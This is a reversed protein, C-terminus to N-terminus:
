PRELLERLRSLQFGTAADDLADWRVAAEPHAARMRAVVSRFAELDGQALVEQLIPRVEPPLPVDPAVGAPGAAENAAPLFHWHLHLLHGVRGVLDGTRFPKPLFDDAGAEQATRPDFSLVSASTLLLRLAAGRPRARLQRTFELGDMGAMRYDVIALDPWPETGDDLRALAEAADAYDRCVFGLPVLLDAVLNRNVAHDDVILVRRRPGDYGTVRVGAESRPPPPVTPLALAFVFTSGAGPESALALSGGMREALARAIALGLGTGPSAPRTAHAQEFPQFLRAQDGPTVGPGTDSVAFELGLGHDGTPGTTRARLAVEGRTTFKVANGILNDLVQRLKAADGEVWEPLDDALERRFVLGKATAAAAHVVALDVLLERLPLPAPRLDIRGAEIKALDLVDNIMRLLHEGSQHVVRVRDRQDPALRADDQLLQAYGIVGNLPTRLEHSMAALFASKARSAAEAQDRAAALDRTREAVLAELRRREREARGLRWRVFGLVAGLLALGYSAYAEPTRHWPPAVAFAMRGPEGTRGLADRARVELTFPGGVLNTYTVEPSAVVAWHDEYGLLRAEYTVAELAAAPSGFRLHLPERSFPIRRTEPSPRWRREGQVMESVVVGPPERVPAAAALDLRVMGRTGAIWLFERGAEHLWTVSRAGGFGLVEHIAPPLPTWAPEGPTRTDLCGLEYLGAARSVQFWFRGSGDSALPLTNIGAPRWRAFRPDPVLREGSPEPVFVGDRVCVLVTAPQAHIKVWGASAPLGRTADFRRVDAPQGDPTLQVRLAVGSTTGAWVIGDPQTGLNTVEAEFNPVGGTRAASWDSAVRVFELGRLMGVALLDPRGGVRAIDEVQSSTAHVLGGNADLRVLGRESGVMVGGQWLIANSIRKAAAISYPELRAHGFGDVAPRLRMPATDGMAIVMEGQHRSPIGGITDPRGNRTDFVTWAAVPDLVSLGNATEIWLEGRPGRALGYTATHALGSGGGLRRTVTGDPRQWLLGEGATSWVLSGDDLRLGNRIGSRRLFEAAPTSWEALTGEATLRLLQGVDTALVLAGGDGPLVTLRRAAGLRPDEAVARWDGGRWRLLRKGAHCFVEGGASRVAPRIGPFPWRSFTGSPEWALVAGDVTFFVRGDAGAASWVTDFEAHERPLRHALSAFRL